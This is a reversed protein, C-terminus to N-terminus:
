SEAKHAETLADFAREAIDKQAKSATMNHDPHVILRAIKLYRSRKRPDQLDMLNVRNWQKGQWEVLNLIRHLGSLLAMLNKRQGNRLEWKDLEAKQVPNLGEDDDFVIGAPGGGGVGVGVRTQKADLPKSKTAASPSGFLSDFNIGGGGGTRQNPAAPSPDRSPQQSGSGWTTPAFVDLGANAPQTEGILEDLFDKGGGGSSVGSPGSSPSVGGASPSGSDPAIDLGAFINVAPGTAPTATGATPSPTVRVSFEGANPAPAATPQASPALAPAAAPTAAAAPAKQPTLPERSEYVANSQQVKAGAKKLRAIGQMVPPPVSGTKRLYLLDDLADQFRELAEYAYARRMLCKFILSKKPKLQLCLTSDAVVKRHEYLHKYCQARNSLCSCALDLVEDARPQSAAKADAYGLANIAKSFESIADEFMSAKYHKGAAMKFANARAVAARDQPTLPVLKRIPKAPKREPKPQPKPQPKPRVAPKRAAKAEIKVTRAGAPEDFGDGSDDDDYVKEDLEPASPARRSPAAPGASDDSKPFLPGIIKEVAGSLVRKKKSRYQSIKSKLNGIISAAREYYEVQAEMLRVFCEDFITYRSDVLKKTASQLQERMAKVRTKNAQFSAERRSLEARMEDTLKEHEEARECKKRFHVLDHEERRLAATAKSTKVIFAKTREALDAWEDIVSVVVDDFNLTFAGTTAHDFDSQIAIFQNISKRRSKSMKYFKGISKALELQAEGSSVACDRHKEFASRLAGLMKELQSMKLKIDALFKDSLSSKSLMKTANGVM